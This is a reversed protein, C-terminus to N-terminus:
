GGDPPSSALPSPSNSEQTAGCHQCHPLLSHRIKRCSECHTFLATGCGPCTYEKEEGTMNRTFVVTPRRMRSLRTWPIVGYEMPYGCVPCQGAQYGERYRQSLWKRSPSAFQQILYVLVVLVVAIALGLFMYKYYYRPFHEHILGLSLTLVAANHAHILMLYRSRRLKMHLAGGLAMFPLLVLFRLMAVWLRHRTTLPEQRTWLEERADKLARENERQKIRVENSKKVVEQYRQQNQLFTEQSAVFAQSEEASMSIDRNLSERRLDLIQSLTRQTGETSERLYTSQEELAQAEDALARGTNELLAIRADLEPAIVKPADSTAIDHLMFAGLWYLLLGLLLAFFWLGIRYWLPGKAIRSTREM